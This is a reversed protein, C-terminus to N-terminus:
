THKCMTDYLMQLDKCLCNCTGEELQSLVYSEYPQYRGQIMEIVWKSPEDLDENRHEVKTLLQKIIYIPHEYIMSIDAVESGEHQALIGNLNHEILVAQKHIHFGYQM